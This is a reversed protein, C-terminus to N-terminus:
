GPLYIRNLNQGELEVVKKEIYKLLEPCDREFDDCYITKTQSDIPLTIKLESTCSTESTYKSKLTWFGKADIEKFFNIANLSNIKVTSNQNNKEDEFYTHDIKTYNLSDLIISFPDDHFAGRKLTLTYNTDTPQNTSQVPKKDICSRLFLFNILFLITSIKKM